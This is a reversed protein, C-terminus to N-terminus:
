FPIEDYEAAEQREKLAKLWFIAEDIKTLALATERSKECNREVDRRNAGLGEIETKTNWSSM